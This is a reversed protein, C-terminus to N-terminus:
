LRDVAAALRLALVHGLVALCEMDLYAPASRDFLIRTSAPFDEDGDWFILVMPVKPLARIRYCLDGTEIGEYPDGGLVRISAALEDAKGEFTRSIRGEVQGQFYHMFLAADRFERYSIWEGKLPASGNRLVYHSLIIRTMFDKEEGGSGRRVGEKGVRMAVSFFDLLLLDERIEAGLGPAAVALDAGGLRDVLGECVKEYNDPKLTEFM